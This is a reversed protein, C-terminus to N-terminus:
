ENENSFYSDSMSRTIWRFLERSTKIFRFGFRHITANHLSIWISTDDCQHLSIWISRQMKIFRFEFRDDYQSQTFNLHIYWRMKIFRFGFQHITANHHLSIWITRRMKIFRFEFRDDCKSSAFNLDITANQHRKDEPFDFNMSYHHAQDNHNESTGQHLHTYRIGRHSRLRTHRTKRNSLLAFILIDFRTIISLSSSYKSDQSYLSSSYTSDQSYPSSSYTSDRSQSRLRTHRTERNSCPHTHQTERKSLSSSYTSDQLKPVIVDNTATICAKNVPNTEMEDANINPPRKIM